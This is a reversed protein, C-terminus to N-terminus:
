RKLEKLATALDKRESFVKGDPDVLEAVQVWVRLAPAAEAFKDKRPGVAWSWVSNFRVTKNIRDGCVVTLTDWGGHVVLPGYDDKFAAFREARLAERVAAVREASFSVKQASPKPGGRTTLEAEGASNISWYWRSTENAPPLERFRRFVITLPEDRLDKDELDTGILRSKDKEILRSKDQVGASEVSILVSVLIVAIMIARM